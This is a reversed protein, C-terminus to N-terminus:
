LSLMDLAEEIEKVTGIEEYKKLKTKIRNHEKQLTEQGAIAANLQSRLNEICSAAEMCLDMIELTCKEAYRSKNRLAKIFEEISM